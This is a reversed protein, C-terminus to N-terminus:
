LLEHDYAVLELQSWKESNGLHDSVLAEVTTFTHSVFEFDKLFAEFIVESAFHRCYGLRVPLPLVKGRTVPPPHFFSFRRQERLKCRSTLTKQNKDNIKEKKRPPIVILM